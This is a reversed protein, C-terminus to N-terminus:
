RTAYSAGILFPSDETAGVGAESKQWSSDTVRAMNDNERLLRLLLDNAATQMVAGSEWRAISAEGLRTLKAFSARDLGNDNRIQRIEAPTLLGLHRCVAEHQLDEAKDDLYQYHCEQCTFLPVQATLEVENEGIGYPFAYDTMEVKLAPVNCRPCNEQTTNEM